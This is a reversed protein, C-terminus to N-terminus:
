DANEPEQKPADTSKAVAKRRKLNARLAAALRAEREAKLEAM